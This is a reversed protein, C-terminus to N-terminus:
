QYWQGDPMPPQGQLYADMDGLGENELITMLETQQSQSLSGQRGSLFSFQSADMGPPMTPMALGSGPGGDGFTPMADNFFSGNVSGFNYAAAFPPPPTFWDAASSVAPLPRQPPAPQTSRPAAYAPGRQPQPNPINRKQPPSMNSQMAAASAGNVVSPLSAMQPPMGAASSMNGAQTNPISGQPLSEPPTPLQNSLQLDRSSALSPDPSANYQATNDALGPVDNNQTFDPPFYSFRRGNSDTAPNEFISNSRFTPHPPPYNPDFTYTNMSEPPSDFVYGFQPPNLYPLQQQSNVSQAYSEPSSQPEIISPPSAFSFVPQAEQPAKEEYSQLCAKSFIAYLESAEANGPWREASRDLCELSTNVMEEVESRSHAQRVEQYSTSWLLANLAMNLTLLFVWTIDVLGSDMQKKSNSIIFASSNFCTMAAQSSPQPVQPSPRYLFVMM